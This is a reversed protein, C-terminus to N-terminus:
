VGLTLDWVGEVIVLEVLDPELFKTCLFALHHELMEGGQLLVDLLQLLVPNENYNVALNLHSTCM